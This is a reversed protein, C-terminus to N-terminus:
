LKIQKLNKEISNSLQLFFDSILQKRSSINWPNFKVVIYNGDGEFNELVMNIFSTKGSGWKGIIGITLSDKNKYYEIEKALDCAVNARDLLDKEKSVIAKESYFM